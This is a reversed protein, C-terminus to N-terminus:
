EERYYRCKVNKVKIWNINKLKEHLTYFAESLGCVEKHICTECSLIEKEEDVNMIIDIM